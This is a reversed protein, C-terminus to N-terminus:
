DFGVYERVKPCGKDVVLQRMEEVGDSVGHVLEAPMRPGVTGSKLMALGVPMKDVAFRRVGQLVYRLDDGRAGGALCAPDGIADFAYTEPVDADIRHMAARRILCPYCRGCNTYPPKGVWRPWGAKGCSLTMPLLETLVNRNHCSELVMGKSMCAFPNVIEYGIGANRLAAQVKGLYGPHTTRTSYSGQRSGSMPMNVGIFGNEPLFVRDVGPTAAACSVALAIFLFSRARTTSELGGAVAVKLSLQQLRDAGYLSQLRAVIRAQVGADLGSEFHSVLLVRQNEELLNIAGCLSDTGGSFLCVADAAFERFLPPSKSHLTQEIRPNLSWRDGSVFSLAEGFLDSTEALRSNCPFSVLIERSWADWASRRSIRKDAAHVAVALSLFAEVSDGTTRFRGPLRDLTHRLGTETTAGLPGVVVGAAFQRPVNQQQMSRLFVTDM